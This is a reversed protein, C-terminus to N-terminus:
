AAEKTGAMTLAALAFATSTDTVPASSPAVTDHSIVESAPPVGTMPLVVAAVASRVSLPRSRDPRPSPVSVRDSRSVSAPLLAPAITVSVIALSTVPAATTSLPGSVAWLSGNWIVAVKASGTLPRSGDSKVIVLPVSEPKVGDPM